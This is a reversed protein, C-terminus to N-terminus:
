LDASAADFRCVRAAEPHRAVVYEARSRIKGSTEDLLPTGGSYATGEPQEFADLHHAALWADLCAEEAVVPSFAAADQTTARNESPRRGCTLGLLILAAAVRM